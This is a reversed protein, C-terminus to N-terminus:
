IRFVKVAGAHDDLCVLAAHGDGMDRIIRFKTHIKDNPFIGTAPANAAGENSVVSWANSWDGNALDTPLTLKYIRSGHETWHMYYVAGNHYVSAGGDMLLPPRAGGPTKVAWVPSSTAQGLLPVSILIVNPSGQQLMVIVGPKSSLFARDHALTPAMRTGSYAPSGGGLKGQDYCSHTGSASDLRVYALAPAQPAFTWIYGTNPDLLSHCGTFQNSSASPVYYPTNNIAGYFAWPGADAVGPHPVAGSAEQGRASGYRFMNRDYSVVGHIWSGSGGTQHGQFTYWVKGNAYTQIGYTHMSTCRGDLFRSTGDVVNANTTADYIFRAPTPDNLRYWYPTDEWLAFAYGENGLYDSHGGSGCVLLERRAEDTTAGSYALVGSPRLGSYTSNSVMPLYQVAALTNYGVAAWTNSAMAAFWSPAGSSPACSTAASTGGSVTVAPPPCPATAARSWAPLLCGAVSSSVTLFERRKM